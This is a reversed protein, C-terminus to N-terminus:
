GQRGTSHVGINRSESVAEAKSRCIMSGRKALELNRGESLERLMHCTNASVPIKLVTAAVGCRRM